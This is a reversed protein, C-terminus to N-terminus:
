AVSALPKVAAALEDLTYPRTLDIKLYTGHNHSSDLVLLRGALIGYGTDQAQHGCIFLESWWAKSLTALVEPTQGRGWILQYVSGNRAYDAELLERRLITSDFTALDRPGPLSHTLLIGNFTLAALPMSMFFNRFAAQANGYDGGARTKFYRTFRDTLDYGDKMIPQGQVQALDHNALLFHVQGPFKEAWTIADLLMDLSHDGGDQGLAGGHVIEQLIVHRQPNKELNAATKVREFNRHHNHLDGAVILDGMGPLSIVNGNRLPEQQNLRTGANLINTVSHFFM